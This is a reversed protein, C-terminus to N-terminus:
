KSSCVEIEVSSFPLSGGPRVEGFHEETSFGYILICTGEDKSQNNSLNISVSFSEGLYDGSNEPYIQSFSTGDDIDIAYVKSVSIGAQKLNSTIDSSYLGGDQKIWNSVNLFICNLVITNCTDCPPPATNLSDKKCSSSLLFILFCSISISISNMHKM